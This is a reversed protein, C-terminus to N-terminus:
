RTTERVLALIEGAIEEAAAPKGAVRAAAAMHERTTDEYLLTDLARKVAAANAGAEKADEVIVAAGATALERANARQHMDKHFPYPLLVAPVGCTTLEACTSAGARAIALDAVAWVSAMDDCYDIVQVRLAPWQAYTLRVDAAQDLGALHLIQWGSGDRREFIERAAPDELMKLVADNITKAGLSAGTVVLTRREPDINLKRAGEARTRGVLEARIPCGLPKVVGGGSRVAAQHKEGLPWQTVVVDARKLLFRNALGPLADPNLLVVPIKRGTKRAKAAMYAAPGAAYGGLAVVCDVEGRGMRQAWLACSERWGTWFGWLKKVSKTLPQVPQQIYREGFGSLLRRDVARPTAAWLIELRVGLVEARAELASAVALGPYLHGGTGGGAMVMRLTRVAEAGGAAGREDRARESSARWTMDLVTKARHPWIVTTM